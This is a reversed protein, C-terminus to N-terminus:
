SNKPLASLREKLKGLDVESQSLIDSYCSVCYTRHGMSGPKAVEVCHQGKSISHDCRKCTRKGPAVLFKSGGAGSGILSPTKGRKPM